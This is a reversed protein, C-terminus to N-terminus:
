LKKEAWILSCYSSWAYSFFFCLIQMELIFDSHQSFCSMQDIFDLWSLSWHGKWTQTTEESWICNESYYKNGCHTWAGISFTCTVLVLKWLELVTCLANQLPLKMHTTLALLQLSKNEQRQKWCKSKMTSIAEHVYRRTCNRGGLCNVLWLYSSNLSKPDTVKCSARCSHRTTVPIVQILNIPLIFLVHPLPM